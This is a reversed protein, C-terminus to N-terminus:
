EGFPNVFSELPVIKKGSSNRMSSTVGRGVVVYDNDDRKSESANEVDSVVKKHIHPTAVVHNVRTPSVIVQQGLSVSEKAISEDELANLVHAGHIKNKHSVVAVCNAGTPSLAGVTDCGHSSLNQQHLNACTFSLSATTTEM